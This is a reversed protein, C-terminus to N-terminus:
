DGCCSMWEQPAKLAGWSRRVHADTRSSSFFNEVFVLSSTKDTTLM